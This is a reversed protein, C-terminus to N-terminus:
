KLVGQECLGVIEEVSYPKQLIGSFNYDRIDSSSILSASMAYFLPQQKKYCARLKVSLEFGNTVDLNIDTLIKSPLFALVQELAESETTAYIFNLSNEEAIIKLVQINLKHDDIVLVYQGFM